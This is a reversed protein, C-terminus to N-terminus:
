SHLDSETSDLTSEDNKSGDLEISEISSEKQTESEEPKSAQSGDAKAANRYYKNYLLWFISAVVLCSMIITLIDVWTLGLNRLKIASKDLGLLDLALDGNIYVTEYEEKNNPMSKSGGSVNNGETLNVSLIQEDSDREETKIEGGTTKTEIKKRTFAICFNTKPKTDISKEIFEGILKDKDKNNELTGFRDEALEELSKDTDEGNFLLILENNKSLINIINEQNIVHKGDELVKGQENNGQENNIKSTNQETKEIKINEIKLDSCNVVFKINQYEQGLSFEGDMIYSKQLDIWINSNSLKQLYEGKHEDYNSPRSVDYGLLILQRNQDLTSKNTESNLNAEIEAIPVLFESLTNAIFDRIEEDKINLSEINLKSLEDKLHRIRENKDLSKVKKLSEIYLETIRMEAIISIYKESQETLLDRNNSLSEIAMSYLESVIQDEKVIQNEKMYYPSDTIQFFSKVNLKNKDNVEFSNFYKLFIRSETAHLFTINSDDEIEHYSELRLPGNLISDITTKVLDKQRQFNLNRQMELERNENNDFEVVETETNELKGTVNNPSLEKMETSNETLSSVGEKGKDNASKQIATSYNIVSSSVERRDEDSVKTPTQRAQHIVSM